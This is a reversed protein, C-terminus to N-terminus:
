EEENEESVSGLKMHNECTSFNTGFSVVHVREPPLILLEELVDKFELTGGEKCKSLLRQAEKKTMLLKVRINKKHDNTNEKEETEVNKEQSPLLPELLKSNEPHKKRTIILEDRYIYNNQTARLKKFM